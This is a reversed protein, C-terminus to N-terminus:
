RGEGDGRTSFMVDGARPLFRQGNDVFLTQGTVSAADLLYAVGDGIAEAQIPRRLLNEGAVAAFEDASQDLSPLTLGPAVANVRVRPALSQALMTTAAELAAKTLTYSFFDPNLNALKQDLINVVAGDALDDQRALLSALLVPATVNVRALTEFLAGSAIPPADFRFLSASNVLGSIPGGLAARAAAFFAGLGDHDALDAAIPVAADGLAAALARAEAESRHHHIIVRHGGAVLRRVIAAGLRRAGGTVIVNRSGPM